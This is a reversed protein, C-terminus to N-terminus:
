SFHASMAFADVRSILVRIRDVDIRLNEGPVSLESSVRVADKCTLGIDVHVAGYITPPYPM